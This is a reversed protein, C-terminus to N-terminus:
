DSQTRQPLREALKSVLEDRVPELGREDSPGIGIQFIHEGRPADAVTKRVMAKMEAKIEM